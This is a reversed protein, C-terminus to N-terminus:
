RRRMFFHILRRMLFRPLLRESLPALRNRLGPLVVGRGAMLGRYGAEAVAEAPAVAFRLLNSETLGAREHFRSRTLGPCLCTVSVGSEALEERVAESLRFLYAKSAFYTAMMPGPLFAVTSAVNLIRGHGRARMEAGFLHCLRTPAAINVALLDAHEGAARDLFGGYLGFGANNVLIEVELGAAGVARHLADPGDADALDAAFCWAEVGHRARIEAALSELREGKRASLAVPHGHRAFVHALARGIGESAGTILALGAPRLGEGSSM